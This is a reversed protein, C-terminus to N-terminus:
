NCSIHSFIENCCKTPQKCSAPPLITNLAARMRFQFMSTYHLPKYPHLVTLLSRPLSSILDGKERKGTGEDNRKTEDRRTEDRSVVSQCCQDKIINRAMYSNHITNHKTRRVCGVNVM